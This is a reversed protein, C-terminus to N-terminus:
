RHTPPGHQHRSIGFQSGLEAMGLQSFSKQTSPLDFDGFELSCHRRLLLEMLDDKPDRKKQTLPPKGYRRTAVIDVLLVDYSQLSCRSVTRVVIMPM